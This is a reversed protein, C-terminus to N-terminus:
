FAKRLSHTGCTSERKKTRWTIQNTLVGALAWEEVSPAFDGRKQDDYQHRSFRSVQLRRHSCFRPIGWGRCINVDTVVFVNCHCLIMEVLQTAWNPSSLLFCSRTFELGQPWRAKMGSKIYETPTPQGQRRALGCSLQQLISHHVSPLLAHIQLFYLPFLDFAFFTEAAHHAHYRAQYVTLFEFWSRILDFLLGDCMSLSRHVSPPFLVTGAVM